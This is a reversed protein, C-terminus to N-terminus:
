VCVYVPLVLTGDCAAYSTKTVHGYRVTLARGKTPGRTKPLFLNQSSM